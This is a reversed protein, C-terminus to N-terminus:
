STNISTPSFTKQTLLEKMETITQQEYQILHLDDSGFANELILM